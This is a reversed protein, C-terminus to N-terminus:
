RTHMDVEDGDDAHGDDDDDAYEDHDDDVHRIINQTM